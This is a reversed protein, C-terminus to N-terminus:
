GRRVEEAVTCAGDCPAVWAAFAFVALLLAALIATRRADDRSM